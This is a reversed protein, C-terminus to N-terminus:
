KSLIVSFYNQQGTVTINAGDLNYSTLLESCGGTGIHNGKEDCANLMESQDGTYKIESIRYKRKTNVIYIEWDCQLYGTDVQYEHPLEINCFLINTNRSGSWVYESDVGNPCSNCILNQYLTDLLLTSDILQSFTNNAVFTKIIVTDLEAKSYGAMQIILDKHCYTKVPCEPVKICATSGLLLLSTIVIRYNM